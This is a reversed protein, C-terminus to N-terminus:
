VFCSASGQWCCISMFQDTSQCLCVVCWLALKRQHTSLPLYWIRNNQPWKTSLITYHATNHSEYGISSENFLGHIPTVELQVQHFPRFLIRPRPKEGVKGVKNQTFLFLSDESAREPWLIPVAGSIGTQSFFLFSMNGIFGGSKRVNMRFLYARSMWWKIHQKIQSM